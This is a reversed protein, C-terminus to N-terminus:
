EATGIVLGFGGLEDVLQFLLAGFQILLLTGAAGQQPVLFEVAFQDGFVLGAADLLLGVDVLGVGFLAPGADNGIGNVQEGGRRPCGRDQGQM